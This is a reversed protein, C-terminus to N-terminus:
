DLPGSWCPDSADNPTPIIRENHGTFDITYIRGLGNVRTKSSRSGKTFALIRGNRAWAPSEVLYGQAILRETNREENASPHLIGITFGLQRSIKTFAIYNRSSWEPSAYSGGGFSIRRISSGDRNMIFLQRSGHRDSNFAIKTGDPSYSPSTNISNGKTLQIRKKTQLNIEYIHTRGNKAISMIAYKGDPSFRPAFSMGPFDGVLRNSGNELNLMHVQPIRNKYSLYLIKKGDPSFRPTLVLDRGDTLYRHNEGDYDMMALRKKRNLYPGSESVYVIKTNFYGEYGTIKHYIQDAIKHAIRRWTRKRNQKIVQFSEEIIARELITDWLAIKVLLRGQGIVKVEGNLLLSANIQQWAAFLPEHNLGIKNEIFAAKSIPRFMGSSRLDDTIVKIIDSAVERPPAEPGVLAFDNVAIAIPDSNGGTISIVEAAKVNISINLLTGLIFFGIVCYEHIFSKWAFSIKIFNKM